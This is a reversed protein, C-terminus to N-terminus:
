IRNYRVAYSLGQIEITTNRYEHKIAKLYAGMDIERQPCM